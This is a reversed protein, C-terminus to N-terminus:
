RIALYRGINILTFGCFISFEVVAFDPFFDWLTLTFRLCKSKVLSQRFFTKKRSFLEVLNSLHTIVNTRGNEDTLKSRRDFDPSCLRVKFLWWIQAFKLNADPRTLLTFTKAIRLGNAILSSTCNETVNVSQCFGSTQATVFEFRAPHVISVKSFFSFSWVSMFPKFYPNM